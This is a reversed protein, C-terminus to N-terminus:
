ECLLLFAVRLRFGLGLRLSLRLRLLRHKLTALKGPKLSMADQVELNKRKLAHFGSKDRDNVLILDDEIAQSKLSIASLIPGVM